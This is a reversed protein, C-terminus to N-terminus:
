RTRKRAFRLRFFLGESRKDPMKVYYFLEKTRNKAKAEQKEEKIKTREYLDLYEKELKQWRQYEAPYRKYKKAEARIYHYIKHLKELDDGLKIKISLLDKDFYTKIVPPTVTRYETMLRRPYSQGTLLEQYLGM